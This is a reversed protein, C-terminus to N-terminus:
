FPPHPLRCFGSGIERAQLDNVMNTHGDEYMNAQVASLNVAPSNGTARDIYCGDVAGSLTANVCDSM